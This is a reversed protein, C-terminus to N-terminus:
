RSSAGCWRITRRAWRCFYIIIISFYKSGDHGVEVSSEFKSAIINNVTDQPLLGMDVMRALDASIQREKILCAVVMGLTTRGRGAQCSFVCQTAAAEAKLADVLIDFCHEQIFSHINLDTM